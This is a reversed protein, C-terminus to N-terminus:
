ASPEPLFTVTGEPAGKAAQQKLYTNTSDLSEFAELKIQLKKM